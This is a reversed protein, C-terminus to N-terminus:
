HKHGGLPSVNFFKEKLTKPRLLESTKSARSRRHVEDLRITTDLDLSLLLAEIIEVDVLGEFANALPTKNRQICDSFHIIETAFQDRRSFRKMITKGSEFLRLIMSSEYNYSKELRIRGKTGILDFDASPFTGLSVTFTAIKGGPFKLICSVTEDVNKFRSENSTVSKAYVEVPEARFLNRAANICYVGIDYLPGGGKESQELRINEPEKVQITFVSHFIRPDGIRKSHALHLAKRNAPEFYLRYAVMLKVGNEKAAEIMSECDRLTLSMPKECLVHVGYRAALEALYRHHENPTCIYVADFEKRQLGEEFQSYLYRKEIQYAEGLETLKEQNGSVLAVLLSNEQAKKFAPLVAHRAIHGLGIVAYRIKDKPQKLLM